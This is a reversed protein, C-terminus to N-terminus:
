SAELVDRSKRGRRRDALAIVGGLIMLYLSFWVLRVTPNIFIQLTAQKHHTQDFDSLVAYIDHWFGEMIGVEHFLEQKTPYRARAADIVGLSRGTKQDTVTLPAVYLMVNEDQRTLVQDFDFQYGYLDTKEGQTLTVTKHVGRYNGLFGLIAILFGIHALLAGTYAINNRFFFFLRYKMAQFRLFFDYLLCFACWFALLIGALQLILARGQSAFVDGSHAFIITFPVAVALARWILKQGGKIQNSQYRMLNGAAIAVIFGFGIWPAFANFYPAQVNFRVGTIAESVIPYVTGIFVILAFTVLLFQTVVLASEKSVGWIKGTDAPLIAQAKLGYLITTIGAIGSLFYLYNPGIPSQAFSHVSSIVGSRTIFTGFFCFFFALSALILSLRKLHGLKNQILLSHLLATAFLWPIFSSNEVPDWAWYGAWGLEVYAWRGGLFIGFTLFSWAFLTWRRVTRLWGETIDGYCLAAISYAFPVSLATYGTFLSPPHIIMYPNQLLANMGLGNEPVPFQLAFPDSWVVALYFMWSLVSQLTASIWPMLHENDKSYSLHAVACCLSLLLTWLFHSGELSSWFASLTYLPPLDNSSNRFIYSVGYDRQFLLFCLLIAAAVAMGCSSLAAMKASRYLRRHRLKASILAAGTGYLSTVTCFLLLSYGLDAPM